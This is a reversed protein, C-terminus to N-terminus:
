KVSMKCMYEQGTDPQTKKEATFSFCTSMDLAYNM